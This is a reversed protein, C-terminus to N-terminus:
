ALPAQGGESKATGWLSDDAAGRNTQLTLSHQPLTSLYTQQTQNNIKAFLSRLVKERDEWSLDEIQFRGLDVGPGAPGSGSERRSGTGGGKAFIPPLTGNKGEDLAERRAMEMSSILFAEVDSRQTLVAQSLKRIHKLERTKLALARKLSVIEARLAQTDQKSQQESAGRQKNFQEFVQALTRELSVIKENAKKIQRQQQSGRLAFEQEIETKIELERSLDIKEEELSDRQRQLEDTQQVHLRLEEAMRKNQQLIRKVSADLREDINEEASRKLEELRQEYDKKLKTNQDVYKRELELLQNEQQKKTSANEEKLLNMELEVQKKRDKFQKVSRLESTLGQMQKHLEFEQNKFQQKAKEMQRLNAQKMEEKEEQFEREQEEVQAELMLIRENKKVIEKRLFEAVEFSEHKEAQHEELLKRNAQELVSLKGQTALLAKKKRQNRCPRGCRSLSSVM